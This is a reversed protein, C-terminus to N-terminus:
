SELNATETLGGLQLCETRLPIDPCPLDAQKATSFVFQRWFPWANHVANYEAFEKLANEEVDGTLEYDVQFTAEIQFVPDPEQGEQSPQKVIRVGLDVYVRFVRILQDEVAAEGIEFSISLKNLLGLPDQLSLEAFRKFNSEFLLINRLKLNNAALAILGKDVIQGRFTKAEGM